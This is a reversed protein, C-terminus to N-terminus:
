LPLLWFTFTRDKYAVRYTPLAEGNRSWTDVGGVGAHEKDICLETFESKKLQESHRQKKKDGEDLEAIDYHLASAAFDTDSVIRLGKGEQCTQNWWRIGTKTGSEQPRIYPFYQEDANQSYIGLHQSSCRDAYNEIPGRGYFESRDMGYPMDLKMGFRLMNSVKAEPTTIMQETVRVKGEKDIAYTLILRAQVEPMDYTAKVQAYGKAKISELSQLNIAPNRWVKYRKQIDAGMDNDTVARWFNPQLKGGEGLMQKGNVTYQTMYGTTRDFAITFVDNGVLLPQGKKDTVKVKGVTLAPMDFTHGQICLQEHAMLQGAEILPEASKTVFQLNLLVESKADVGELRYPLTFFATEQPAVNVDELSGQQVAKGDVLLKWLLKYNKLDRFFYENHVSIKGAKLDVAKAWIEQHQYAVEHAHPNLQRDPGVFGNSNFNKDDDSDWDNYDGAYTYIKRGQADKGHLAQDVFDWIFGGQYKPYKRILDWYEKFGGQTNGMAHAYECQILPKQCQPKNSKCYNEAERHTAYMPCYIDSNFNWRVAGREWHVLRSADQEKIWRYAAEFNPGDVTENGLSWLLISPHNFHFGVNHQNRELIQKAFQKKYSVTTTDYGFGHSEQNAESIVYIGYEDCLDYWRPDNPYHCTRVANVNLQKMLKIDQLMREKSVVYGGDPDLEHRNAGKILIPQGNLLLQANRIEIKRFGVKQPIVEVVRDGQKVTAVLTFLYPTEATWKKVNRVNFRVNGKNHKKFDATTKAVAIGNANLLEFDIVPSGDVDVKVDLTGDQYNNTLDPIIRLDNVHVQADRAYLYCQRAVGSLRWFDQDESYSGDCWRFTQFAILNDGKRLHPTIDFEAAVKSDEAYGVFAGNVYLYINSTVSGFHAIVQKGDWNDPITIVKRYSGVHNHENPVFPPNNKFHGRWAFGVNVYVPDGYGNMEWIGPIALTKWQTDNLDTKYFDTPRQDANEVYKFKWPGELSLYNTSHEMEGQLAKSKTEYAFFTAHVPFRNVENVEQDQWETYTPTVEDAVATMAFLASAVILIAKRM